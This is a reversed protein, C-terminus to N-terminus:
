GVLPGSLVPCSSRPPGPSKRLKVLQSVQTSDTLVDPGREAFCPSLDQGGLPLLVLPAKDLTSVFGWSGSTGRTVNRPSYVPFGAALVHLIYTYRVTKMVSSLAISGLFLLCVFSRFFGFRHELAWVYTCVRVRM